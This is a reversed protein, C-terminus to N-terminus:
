KEELAKKAVERMRRMGNIGNKFCYMAAIEELAKRYRDREEEMVIIFDRHEDLSM